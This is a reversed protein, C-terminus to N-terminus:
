GLLQERKNERTREQERERLTQSEGEKKKKTKKKIIPRKKKKKRLQVYGLVFLMTSVTGTRRLLLVCRFIELVHQIISRRDATRLIHVKGDEWLGVDVPDEEIQM